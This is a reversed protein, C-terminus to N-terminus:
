DMDPFEHDTKDWKPKESKKEAKRFQTLARFFASINIINGWFIRPISLLGQKVGYISSVFYFRHIIRSLLFFFNIGLIYWTTSEYPIFEPFLYTDPFLKKVIVMVIINLAAFYAFFAAPNTFIAKRDRYFIYKNKIGKPWGITTWGQFVIGIIWRSKQRIALNLKAPFFERICIISNGVKTDKNDIKLDESEYWAFTVKLGEKKFKYGIDYDETLCKTDFIEGDNLKSLVKFAKRSFATGVGASPVYDTLLERVYMDKQHSECFEDIYHGSTLYNWKKPLAIVPLQVMDNKPIMYNYLKLEMPHIVDESDHFGIIKFEMENKKEYDFIYEIVNNLCHAKTTPGPKDTVVKHVNNYKKVIKDVEDQTAQDNPYTGIFIQYNTYKFTAASYDAMRAIVSSEDWAPIMIAIPQEELENLEAVSPYNKYKAKIKGSLKGYWFLLDIILDDLSSFLITFSSIHLILGIFLWYIVFFDLFEM